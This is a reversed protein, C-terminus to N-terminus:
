ASTRPPKSPTSAPTVTEEAARCLGDHLAHLTGGDALPVVEISLYGNLRAVERNERILNQSAQDM